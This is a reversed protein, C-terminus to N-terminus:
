MSRRRVDHRRGRRRAGFPGPLAAPAVIGGIVSWCSRIWGSLRHPHCSRALAFGPSATSRHSRCAAALRATAPDFSTTRRRLRDCDARREQQGGPQGDSGDAVKAAVLQQAFRVLADPIQLLGRGLQGGFGLQQGASEELLDFSRSVCAACCSAAIASSVPVLAASWSRSAACSCCSALTASSRFRARSSTSSICCAIAPASSRSPATASSRKAVAAVAPPPRPDASRPSRDVRRWGARDFDPRRQCSARRSCSVSRSRECRSLACLQSM